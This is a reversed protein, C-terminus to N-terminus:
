DEKWKSLLYYSLPSGSNEDVKPDGECSSGALVDPLMLFLRVDDSAVVFISPKLFYNTSKHGM